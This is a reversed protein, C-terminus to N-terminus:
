EAAAKFKEGNIVLAGDGTTVKVTEGDKIRGALIREALPNQLLKQIM